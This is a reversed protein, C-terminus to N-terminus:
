RTKGLPAQLADLLAPAGKKRAEGLAAPTVRAGGAVLARVVEVHGAGIAGLLPTGEPPRGKEVDAGGDILARVLDVNGSRAAIALPTQEYEDAADLDAGAAVLAKVVPVDGQSVANFVLTGYLLGATDNPDAGAKVLAPIVEARGAEVAEILATKRGAGRASVDAGAALLAAVVEKHGRRAAEVLLPIGEADRTDASVGARLFLDLLKRDQFGAARRLGNADVAYGLKKLEALAAPDAGPAASGALLVTLIWTQTM